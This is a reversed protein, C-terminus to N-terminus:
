SRNSAIIFVNSDVSKGGSEVHIQDGIVGTRTSAVQARAKSFDFTVTTKSVGGKFSAPRYSPLANRADRWSLGSAGAWLWDVNGASDYATIIITQQSSTPALASGPIRNIVLHDLAGGVLQFPHSTLTPGNPIKVTLTVASYPRDSSVHARAVGNAFGLPAYSSAVSLGWQACGDYSQAVTNNSNYATVSWGDGGIPLSSGVNVVFYAPKTAPTKSCTPTQAPSVPCPSGVVVYGSACITALPPNTAGASGGFVIAAAGVVPVLLWWKHVRLM